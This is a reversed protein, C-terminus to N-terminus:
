FLHPREYIVGYPPEGNEIGIQTITAVADFFHVHLDKNHRFSKMCEFQKFRRNVTEHRARAANKMFTQQLNASDQPDSVREDGRYGGDAEVRERPVLM